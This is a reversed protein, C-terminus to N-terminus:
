HMLEISEVNLSKEKTTILIHQKSKVLAFQCQDREMSICDIVEEYNKEYISQAYLSTDQINKNSVPKWGENLLSARVQSYPTNLYQKFADTDALATFSIVSSALLAILFFLKM